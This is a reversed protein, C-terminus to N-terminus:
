GRRRQKASARWAVGWVRARARRGEKRRLLGGWGLWECAARFHPPAPARAVVAGEGPLSVRLAACHLFLPSGALAAAGAREVVAAALARGRPSRVAGYREDGAIPAGLPPAAAVRRLQHKRGTVPRMELWAWGDRAALIRWWTISRPPPPPGDGRVAELAAAAAGQGRPSHPSLPLPRDDLAPGWGASGPRGARPDPLDGYPRGDVLAWQSHTKQNKKKKKKAPTLEHAHAHSGQAV